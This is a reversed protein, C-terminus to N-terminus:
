FRQLTFFPQLIFTLKSLILIPKTVKASQPNQGSKVLKRIELLDMHRLDDM